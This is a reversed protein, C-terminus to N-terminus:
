PTDYSAYANKMFKNIPFNERNLSAEEGGSGRLAAGNAKKPWSIM